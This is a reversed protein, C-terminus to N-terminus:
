WGNKLGFKNMKLQILNQFMILKDLSEICSYNIVDENCFEIRLENWEPSSIFQFIKQDKISRKLLEEILSSEIEFHKSKTPLTDYHDNITSRAKLLSQNFQEYLDYLKFNSDPLKFVDQEIFKLTWKSFFESIEIDEESKLFKKVTNEIESNLFMLKDKKESTESLDDPITDINEM